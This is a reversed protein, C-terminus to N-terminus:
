ETKTEPKVIPKIESGDDNFEEIKAGSRLSAMLEMSIKQGEESRIQDASEEFSPNKGERRAEVKIVHWGFQTKVAQESVEGAKMAFAATAFEPVMAAKAFFGLDGGRPASPGKSRKKATEAFDAGGKIEAIVAKADEENELLIHRAHVEDEPTQKAITDDYISRLHEETLKARVYKNLYREQLVGDLFFAMQRQVTEDKDFEEKRAQQSIIRRDVLASRLQPFLVGIPMRKYQDPLSQFFMLVESKYIADGNVKAIVPDKIEEAIAGQAISLAGLGIVASVAISTTALRM